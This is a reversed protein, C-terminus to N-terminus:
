NEDVVRSLFLKSTMFLNMYVSTWNKSQFSNLSFTFRIAEKVVIQLYLHNKLSFVIAKSQYCLVGDVM